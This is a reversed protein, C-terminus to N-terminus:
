FEDINRSKFLTANDKTGADKLLSNTSVDVIPRAPDPFDPSMARQSSPPPASPTATPGSSDYGACAVLM